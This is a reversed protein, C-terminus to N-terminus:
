DHGCLCDKSRNLAGITEFAENLANSTDKGSYLFALGGTNHALSDLKNDAADTFAITHVTVGSRMVQFVLNKLVNPGLRFPRWKASSM